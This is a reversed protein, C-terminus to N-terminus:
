GGAVAVAAGVHLRDGDGDGVDVLGDGDGAVAATGGGRQIGALVLRGDGGDGGGVDVAVRGDERDGAPGIGCPEADIGGGARQAENGGRVELGGAVAVAVVGVDDVDGGAVAVAAGVHLR